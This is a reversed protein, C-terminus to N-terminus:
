LPVSSSNRWTSVTSTSTAWSKEARDEFLAFMTEFTAVAAAVIADRAPESTGLANLAAIVSQWNGRPDTGSDLHYDLGVGLRPPVGLAEALPRVLVRSGMRSGELVYGVGAWAVPHGLAEVQHIWDTIREPRQGPSAGLAHLDRTIAAARSPTQPWVQQLAPCREVRDEYAAHVHYLSQLLQTYDSRSVCGRLMEQCLPLQEIRAHITGTAQRLANLVEM